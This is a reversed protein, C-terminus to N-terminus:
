LVKASVFTMTLDTQLRKSLGKVKVQQSFKLSYQKIDQISAEIPLGKDSSIWCAKLFKYKDVIPIERYKEFESLIISSDSNETM